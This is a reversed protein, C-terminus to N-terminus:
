WPISQICVCVCVLVSVCNKTSPCLNFKINHFAISIYGGRGEGGLFNLLIDKIMFTYLCSNLTYAETHINLKAHMCTHSHTYTPPHPPPPSPSPRSTCLVHLHSCTIKFVGLCSFSVLSDASAGTDSFTPPELENMPLQFFGCPIIIPM